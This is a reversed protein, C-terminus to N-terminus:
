KLGSKIEPVIAVNKYKKAFKESESITKPIALSYPLWSSGATWPNQEKPAYAGQFSDLCCLEQKKLEQTQREGEHTKNHLPILNLSELQDSVFIGDHKGFVNGKITGRNVVNFYSRKKRAEHVIGKKKSERYAQSERPGVRDQLIDFINNKINWDSIPPFTLDGSADTAGTHNFVNRTVSNGVENHISTNNYINFGGYGEINIGRKSEWFVNHHVSLEKGALDLRVANGKVNHFWNHHVELYKQSRIPMYLGSVDSNFLGANCVNNYSVEPKQTGTYANININIADSCNNFFTNRTIKYTGKARVSLARSEFNAHRNNEIFVCNEVTIQSGNLQLASNQAGAFLCKDFTIQKGHVEIPKAKLNGKVRDEFLKEPGIYTFYSNHFTINSNDDEELKVSTAFFDIGEITVDSLAKSENIVHELTSAMVKKKALDTGEPPYFYLFNDEVFWEGPADLLDLDGALFFRSKNPHWNHSEKMTKLAEKAGRRGDEGTYKSSYFNTDNWNLITGDFADIPRSYCSNGKGYRIFCYGGTLDLDKIESFANSTLVGPGTGDTASKWKKSADWNESWQLNPWQAWTMPKNDFFLKKIEKNGIPARYIGGKYHEFTAEIIEAGSFTVERPHVAKITIGSKLKFSGFYFGDMVMLVDGSHMEDIAYQISQFPQSNSTGSNADDGKPSVYFTTAFLSTTCVFQFVFLKIIKM